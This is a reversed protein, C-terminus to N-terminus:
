NNNNNHNNNNLGTRTGTATGPFGLSDVPHQEVQSGLLDSLVLLM